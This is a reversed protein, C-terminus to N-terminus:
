APAALAGCISFSRSRAQHSSLDPQPPPPSLSTMDHVGFECCASALLSVASYWAFSQATHLMLAQSSHYSEEVLGVVVVAVDDLAKSVAGFRGSEDGPVRYVRPVVLFHYGLMLGVHVIAFLLTQKWFTPTLALHPPPRARTMM